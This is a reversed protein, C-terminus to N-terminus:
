IAAAAEQPDVRGAVGDVLDDGDVAGIEDDAEALVLAIDERDRDGVQREVDGADQGDFPARAEGRRRKRVARRSLGERPLPEAYEDAVRWVRGGVGLGVRQGAPQRPGVGPDAERTVVGNGDGAHGWGTGAARARGG